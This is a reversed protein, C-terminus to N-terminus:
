QRLTKIQQQLGNYMHGAVKVRSATVKGHRIQLLLPNQSLDLNLVRALFEVTTDEPIRSASNGERACQKM